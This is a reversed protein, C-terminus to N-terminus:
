ERCYIYNCNNNIYDLVYYAFSYIKGIYVRCEILLLITKKIFNVNENYIIDSYTKM